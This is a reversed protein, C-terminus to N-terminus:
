KATNNPIEIGMRAAKAEQMMRRGHGDLFVEGTLPKWGPVDIEFTERIANGDDTPVYIPVRTTFPIWTSVPPAM